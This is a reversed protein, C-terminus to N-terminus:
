QELFVFEVVCAGDGGDEGEVGDGVGDAGSADALLSGLDEAGFPEAEDRGDGGDEDEDKAKKKSFDNHYNDEKPSAIQTKKEEEEAQRKAEKIAKEEAALREKEAKAQREEELKKAHEAVKQAEQLLKIKQAADTTIIAPKQEPTVVRKKRVEIQVGPKSGLNVRNGLSLTKGSLTLKETM